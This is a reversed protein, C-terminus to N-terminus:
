SSMLMIIIPTVLLVAICSMLVQTVKKPLKQREAGKYWGSFQLKNRYLIFIIILVAPFGIMGYTETNVGIFAYTRQVITGLLASVIFIILLVRIYELIPRM